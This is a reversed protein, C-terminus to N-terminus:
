REFAKFAAQYIRYRSGEAGVFLNKDDRVSWELPVGPFPEASRALFIRQGDVTVLLGEKRVKMVITAPKGNTFLPGRHADRSGLDLGSVKGREADFHFMSQLGGRVFGVVFEGKNSQREVVLLLDYEEPLKAPLKLRALLITPSLIGNDDETWKGKFADQRVSVTRLLDVAGTPLTIKKFTSEAPPAEAPAAAAKPEEGASADSSVVVRPAAEGAAVSGGGLYDAFAKTLFEKKGKRLKDSEAQRRQLEQPIKAVEGALKKQQMPSLRTGMDRMLRDLIDKRTERSNFQVAVQAHYIANYPDNMNAFLVALDEWLRPSKPHKALAEQWVTRAEENKKQKALAFALERYYLGVGPNRENEWPNIEIAQALYAAAVDHREFSNLLMGFNYYTTDNGPDVTLARHYLKAAIYRCVQEEESDKKARKAWDLQRNAEALIARAEEPNGQRQRMAVFKSTDLDAIPIAFGTNEADSFKLTVVGLVESNANFLPGGSNGPNIAADVQYYSVDDIVRNLGSLMGATISKNLVMGDGGAPNGIAYVRQGPSPKAKAMRAVQLTANHEKPDIRVLALDKQPHLGVIKVKKFVVTDIKSGRRIDVTCKYPLPSAVVHANTLILGSKDIVFGTGSGEVNELAVVCGNVDRFLKVAPEEDAALSIQQGVFFPILAAIAIRGSFSRIGQVFM